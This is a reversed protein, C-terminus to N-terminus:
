GAGDEGVYLVEAIELERAGKPLKVTVVDGESKGVLQRALPSDISLMGKQVDAEDSGVIRYVKEDGSKADVLKVTAGFVVRDGTTMKTIDIVRARGIKAELEDIRGALFSQKEKEYHYEANESLDGHGRAEEIAAVNRPRDVEKIRRLEDVLLKYGRPTMPIESPGSM